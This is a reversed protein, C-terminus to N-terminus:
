LTIGERGDGAARTSRDGGRRRDGGAAAPGTCRDGGAAAAGSCRDGGRVCSRGTM